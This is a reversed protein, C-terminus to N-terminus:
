EGQSLDEVRRLSKLGCSFAAVLLGPHGHGRGRAQRPDVVECSWELQAHRLARRRQRSVQSMTWQERSESKQRALWKSPHPEGAGDRREEARRARSSAAGSVLPAPRAVHRRGWPGRWAARDSDPVAVARRSRSRVEAACTGPRM